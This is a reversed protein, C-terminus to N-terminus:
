TLTCCWIFFPWTPFTVHVFGRGHNSPSFITVDKFYWVIQHLIDSWFCILRASYQCKPVSGQLTLNCYNKQMELDAIDMEKLFLQREMGLGQPNKLIWSPRWIMLIATVKNIISKSDRSQHRNIPKPHCTIRKTTSKITLHLVLLTM